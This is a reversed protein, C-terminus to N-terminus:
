FSRYHVLSRTERRPYLIISSSDYERDQACRQEGINTDPRVVFLVDRGDFTALRFRRFGSGTGVRGTSPLESGQRSM